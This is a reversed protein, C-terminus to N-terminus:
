KWRFPSYFMKGSRFIMSCFEPLDEWALRQKFLPRWKSQLKLVEICPNGTRQWSGIGIDRNGKKQYFQQIFSLDYILKWLQKPGIQLVEDLLLVQGDEVNALAIPATDSSWDKLTDATQLAQSFLM